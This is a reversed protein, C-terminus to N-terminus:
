CPDKPPYKKKAKEEMEGKRELWKAIEEQVKASPDKVNKAAKELADLSRLAEELTKFDGGKDWMWQADAQDMAKRIAESADGSLTGGYEKASDRLGKQFAANKWGFKGGLDALGLPDIRNTPSNSAYSYFNIGGAFGIPDESIFRGLKPDYYRARYYKSAYEPGDSGFVEACAAAPPPAPWTEPEREALM